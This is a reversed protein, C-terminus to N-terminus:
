SPPPYVYVFLEQRIKIAPNRDHIDRAYAIVAKGNVCRYSMLPHSKFSGTAIERKFISAQFFKVEILEPFKVFIRNFFRKQLQTFVCTQSQRVPWYWLKRGQCQWCKFGYAALDDDGYRKKAWKHAGVPSQAHSAKKIDNRMDHPVHYLGDM